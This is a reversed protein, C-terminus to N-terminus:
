LIGQRKAQTKWSGRLDLTRELRNGTKEGLLPGHDGRLSMGIQELAWTMLPVPTCTKWLQAMRAGDLHEIGALSWADPFGLLRAAQRHTGGLPDDPILTCGDVMHDDSRLPLSWWTPRKSVKQRKWQQRMRGVDELADQPSPVWPIVPAHFGIPVQSFITICREADTVGGCSKDDLLLHTIQYRISYDFTEMGERHVRASMRGSETTGYDVSTVFLLAAAKTRVAYRAADMMEKQSQGAGRWPAEAAALHVPAQRWLGHESSWESGLLARNREYLHAETGEDDSNAKTILRMGAMRGAVAVSGTLGYLEAFRLPAQMEHLPTLDVKVPKWAM